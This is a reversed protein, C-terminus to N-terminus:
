PLRLEGKPLEIHMICIIMGYYSIIDVILLSAYSSSNM